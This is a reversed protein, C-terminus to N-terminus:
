KETTAPQAMLPLVLRTRTGQPWSTIDLQAGLVRARKDLSNLGKGRSKLKAADIDFGCGDDAIDMVLNEPTNMVNVILTQARAHKLTNTITEQIIRLLPLQQEVGLQLAEQLKSTDWKLAIGACKLRPEMRFRLDGLALPLSDRSDSSTDIALRLDDICGRLLEYTQAPTLDGGQALALSSVLQSGLGDHMDQMIRAREASQAQSAEIARLKSHSVELERSKEQVRQDLSLALDQIRKRAEDFRAFLNLAVATFLIPAGFHLNRYWSYNIAGRQAIWDTAALGYVVLSAFFLLYTSFTRERLAVSLLVKLIYGGMLLLSIFVVGLASMLLPGGAALLFIPAAAAFLWVMREVVKLRLGAFRLTFLFILILTWILSTAAFIEFHHPAIPVETALYYSNHAAWLVGAAGIYGYASPWGQLSWALLAMLSLGLTITSTVKVTDIQWFERTKWQATIAEKEGFYVESLGGKNRVYTKIRVHIANKGVRLLNAPVSYLQPQYSQRSMPETFNGNGGVHFGNVYTMGNMSLRPIYIASMVLQEPTLDFSLQYWAFGGQTPRSRNWNDPLSQARWQASDSPIEASDEIRIQAATLQTTTQLIPSQTPLFFLAIAAAVVLAAFVLVMWFKQNSRRDFERGPLPFDDILPPQGTTM